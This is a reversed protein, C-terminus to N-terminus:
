LEVLIIGTTLRFFLILNTYSIRTFYYTTSYIEPSYQNSVGSFYPDPDLEVIEAVEAVFKPLSTSNKGNDKVWNLEKKKPIKM